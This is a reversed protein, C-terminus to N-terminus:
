QILFYIFVLREEYASLLFMLYGGCCGWSSWDGMWIVDIM